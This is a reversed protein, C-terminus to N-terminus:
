ESIASLPPYGASREAASLAQLVDVVLDESCEVGVSLRILNQHIGATTLAEESVPAHTMSPPHCVLSEVGGFSEALSFFRLSEVFTRVAAEGGALEFSVMGGFGTQQQAATEHGPHSRLGPYYVREVSEHEDLLEALVNANKEHQQMRAHLTRIGRLTLYADFPAGTIGLCNAWWNLQEALEPTAAVIAGGVVDSHGNLYKTTSHIVVDAGLTIPKQLAPSLFTNDVALLAGCAKAATSMEEIDVIRLLPNSPTEVLILRPKRACAALVAQEDTQDVFSVEFHGKNALSEFLRYTGGYCDHPAILLDGPELLQLVLNLAAMGSSTVTAGAGGELECLADALADRTPNGSRTYDYERKEGFGKFTYNSSLHLPPVVAGHQTDTELSARVAATAPDVSFTM